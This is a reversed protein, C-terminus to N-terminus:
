DLDPIQNKVKLMKQRDRKGPRKRDYRLGERQDKLQQLKTERDFQSQETECYLEAALAAGLRKDSVRHVIVTYEVPFRKIKIQDGTKITRAPKSRKGNVSIHGGKIADSAIKRTKYFRSAWLWIDLRQSDIEDHSPNKSTKM